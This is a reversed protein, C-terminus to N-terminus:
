KTIATVGLLAPRVKDMGSIFDFDIVAIDPKPNWWTLVEFTIIAGSRTTGQWGVAAKASGLQTNWSTINSDWNLQIFAATGDAYHVVYQGPKAPKIRRDDYMGRNVQSPTSTTHLFALGQVKGNVPIGNVINPLQSGKDEKSILQIAAPGDVPIEFPVGAYWGRGRPFASADDNANLGFWGNETSGELFMNCWNTLPLCRFAAPKRLTLGYYVERFGELPHYPRKGLTTSGRKWTNEAAIIMSTMMHPKNNTQSTNIWATGWFGLTNKRYCEEIFPIINLPYYWGSGIVDFGKDQFFTVSPYKDTQGYHWDFIVVDRPIKPLAGATNYPKGGNHEVLLQDGWMCMRLGKTKLFKHLVNIEDAFLQAPPTGKCRPCVGISSIEDLGVHYWKANPYCELHEEIMDFVLKHIEPHRPCYDWLAWKSGPIPTQVEAFKKFEPKTLFYNFHSLCQTMPIIDIGYMDMRAAMMRHEDKSTADSAASLKPHREYRFRSDIQLSICNFKMAALFDLVKLSEPVENSHTPTSLHWGRMKMDPWDQVNTKVCSVRGNSTPICLQALTQIAYVLARHTKATAVVRSNVNLTYAEAQQWDKLGAFGDIAPKPNLTLVIAAKKQSVPVIDCGLRNKFIYILARMAKEAGPGAYATPKLSVMGATPTMKQPLPIVPFVPRQPAPKASIEPYSTLPKGGMHLHIIAPCHTEIFYNATTRGWSSNESFDKLKRSRGLLLKCTHSGKFFDDNLKLAFQATWSTKEKKVASKWSLPQGGSKTLATATTNASFWDKFYGIMHTDRPIENMQAGEMTLGCHQIFDSRAPKIFIEVTDDGWSKLGTLAQSMQPELCKMIIHLTKGHIAFKAFTPAKPLGLEGGLLTFSGAMTATEWEPADWDATLPPAKPLLLVAVEPSSSLNELHVDSFWVPSETGNALLSVKFHDVDESSHLKYTMYSWGGVSATQVPIYTKYPANKFMQYLYIYAGKPSKLWASFLYDCNPQAPLNDQSVRFINGTKGDRRLEQCTRGDKKVVAYEGKAGGASDKRWGDAVGDGDSDAKFNGNTIIDAAPAAAALFLFLLLALTCFRKM